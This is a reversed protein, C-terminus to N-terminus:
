PRKLAARGAATSSIFICSSARLRSSSPCCRLSPTIASSSEPCHVRKCAMRSRTCLRRPNTSTGALDGASTEAEKFARAMSRSSNTVASASVAANRLLKADWSASSFRRAHSSRQTSSSALLCRRHLLPMAGSPGTSACDREFIMPTPCSPSPSPRGSSRASSRSAMSNSAWLSLPWRAEQSRGQLRAREATRPAKLSTSTSPSPTSWHCFPSTVAKRVAENVLARSEM